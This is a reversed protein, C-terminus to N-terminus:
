NMKKREKIKDRPPNDLKLVHKLMLILKVVIHSTIKMYALIQETKLICIQSQYM